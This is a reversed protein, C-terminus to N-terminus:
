EQYNKLLVCRHNLYYGSYGIGNIFVCLISDVCEVRVIRPQSWRSTPSYVIYDGEKIYNHYVDYFECSGSGRIIM